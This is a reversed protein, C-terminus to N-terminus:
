CGQSNEFLTAGCGISQDCGLGHQSDWYLLFGGGALGSSQPEVVALVAQATVLADAATGGNKLVRLAASSALPNATVVVASGAATSISKRGPDSSEPDDRSVPAASVSVAWSYLGLVLFLSRLM